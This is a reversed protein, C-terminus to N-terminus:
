LFRKLVKIGKKGFLRMTKIVIDARIMTKYGPYRKKNIMSELEPLIKLENDFDFVSRTDINDDLPNYDRAECNIGSGDLGWNRSLPIKPYIAIYNKVFFCVNLTVDIVQPIGNHDYIAPCEGMLGASYFHYSFSATKRLKQMVPRQKVLREYEGEKIFRKMEDYRNLWCAFGYPEFIHLGFNNYQESSMEPSKSCVAAIEPKDYSYALGKNIYDIFDPSFENDDETFIFSDYGNQRLYSLLFEENGEAGLNHTQNIIVVSKFGSITKCYSSVLEHGAEYKSSPPYDISIILDTEEAKTNRALSEVCRKLHTARNLTPIIIPANM